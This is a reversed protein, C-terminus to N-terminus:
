HNGREGLFGRALPRSGKIWARECFLIKGLKIFGSKFWGLCGIFHAGVDGAELRRGGAETRGCDRQSSTSFGCPTNRHDPATPRPNASQTTTLILSIAIVFSM